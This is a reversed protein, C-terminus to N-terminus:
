TSSEGEQRKGPPSSLSRSSPDSQNVTALFKKAVKGGTSEPAETGLITDIIRRPPIAQEPGAPMLRESGEVRYLLEGNVLEDTVEDILGTGYLRHLTQLEEDSLARDHRFGEQVKDMLDFSASLKKVPQTTTRVLRYKELHQCAFAVQAGMLVFLWGLYMWVLFLPLTAFSGYIANYNSVGIQMRIYTNQVAFWLIAALVAGLLAPQTKVKTNPFFIYIIYFTISIAFLPVLKLILTQVWELPIFTQFHAALTPSSIFASATLAVSISIPMLVILTIYDAVKRMISRSKEVHWIKNLALEINGFVLIVSVFIGAVGISGLTTFNIKDVYDFIQDVADRLHATLSAPVKKETAGKKEVTITEEEVPQDIEGTDYARGNSLLPTTAGMEMTDLYNYAAERLQDGGGLGKVVATSMALIPVLSLLITYTLAASRLPLDNKRFERLTILILRVLARALRFHPPANDDTQDAWQHLRDIPSDQASAHSSM